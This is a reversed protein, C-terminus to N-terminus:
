IISGTSNVNISLWHTSTITFPCSTITWTLISVGREKKKKFTTVKALEILHIKLSL